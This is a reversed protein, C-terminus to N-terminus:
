VSLFTVFPLKVRGESSIRILLWTKLSENRSRKFSLCLVLLFWRYVAGRSSLPPTMFWKSCSLGDLEWKWKGSTSVSGLSLKWSLHNGM